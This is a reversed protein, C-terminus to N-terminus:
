GCWLQVRIEQTHGGGEHGWMSAAPKAEHRLTNRQPDVPLGDLENGLAAGQLRLGASVELWADAAAGAYLLAPRAARVHPPIRLLPRPEQLAPPVACCPVCMDQIPTLLSNVHDCLLRLAM